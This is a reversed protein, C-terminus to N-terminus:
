LRIRLILAFEKADGGFSAKGIENKGVDDQM